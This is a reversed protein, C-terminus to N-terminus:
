TEISENVYEAGDDTVLTGDENATLIVAIKGESEDSYKSSLNSGSKQTELSPMTLMSHVNAPDEYCHNFDRIAIEQGDENPVPFALAEVENECSLSVHDESVTPAAVKIDRATKQENERSGKDEIVLQSSNNKGKSKRWLFFKSKNSSKIEMRERLKTKPEMVSELGNGAFLIKQPYNQYSELPGKTLTQTFSGLELGKRGFEDHTKRKETTKSTVRGRELRSM